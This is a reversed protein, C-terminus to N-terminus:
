GTAPITGLGDAQGDCQGYERSREQWRDELEQMQMREWM